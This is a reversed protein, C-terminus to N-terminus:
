SNKRPKSKGKGNKGKNTETQSHCNPCLFRLNEICNDTAIGNIHDLELVLEKDNWTENQGCESCVYPILGERLILNKVIGNRKSSGNCLIKEPNYFRGRAPRFHSIDLNNNKIIRTVTQRSVGIAKSIDLYNDYQRVVEKFNELNIEVKPRHQILRSAMAENNELPPRACYKCKDARYDKEGGCNCYQPECYKGGKYNPNNEGRLSTKFKEAVCEKSCCPADKNTIQVPNRNFVTKCVCCVYEAM